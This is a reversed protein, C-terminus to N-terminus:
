HTQNNTQAQTIIHSSYYDQPKTFCNRRHACILSLHRNARRHFSHRDVCIAIFCQFLVFLCFRQLDRLVPGFHACVYDHINVFRRWSHLSLCLVNHQHHQHLPCIINIINIYSTSHYWEAATVHSPIQPDSLDLSVKDERAPGWRGRHTRRVVGGTGTNGYHDLHATSGAPLSGGGQSYRLELASGPLSRCSSFCSPVWLLKFFTQIFCKM